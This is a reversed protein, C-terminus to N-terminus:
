TYQVNVAIMDKQAGKSLREPGYHQEISCSSHFSTRNSLRISKIIIVTLYRNTVLDSTPVSIVVFYVLGLLNDLVRM